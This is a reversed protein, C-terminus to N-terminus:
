MMAFHRVEFNLCKEKLDDELGISIDGEYQLEWSAGGEIFQVLSTTQFLRVYVQNDIVELEKVKWGSRSVTMLMESIAMENEGRKGVDLVKQFRVNM